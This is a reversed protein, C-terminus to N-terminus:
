IRLEIRTVNECLLGIGRGHEGFTHERHLRRKDADDLNLRFPKKIVADSLLKHQTERGREVVEDPVSASPDVYHSPLQLQERLRQVPESPRELVDLVVDVDLPELQPLFLEDADDVEVHLELAVRQQEVGLREVRAARHVLRTFAWDREERGLVLERHREDSPKRAIQERERVARLRKIHRGCLRPVVGVVFHEDVVVEQRQHQAADVDEPHLPQVVEIREHHRALEDVHLLLELCGHGLVHARAELREGVREIRVIRQGLVDGREVVRREFFRALEPNREELRRASDTLQLQQSLTERRKETVRAAGVGVEERAGCLREVVRQDFVDGGVVFLIRKDM